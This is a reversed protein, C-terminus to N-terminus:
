DQGWMAAYLAAHSFSEDDLGIDRITESVCDSAEKVRPQVNIERFYSSLDKARAVKKSDTMRKDTGEINQSHCFWFEKKIYEKPLGHLFRVKM